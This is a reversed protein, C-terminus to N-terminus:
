LARYSKNVFIAKLLALIEKTSYHVYVRFYGNSCTVRKSNDHATTEIKVELGNINYTKM